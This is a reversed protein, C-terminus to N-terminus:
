VFPLRPPAAPWRKLSKTRVLVFRCSFVIQAISYHPAVFLALVFNSSAHFFPARVLQGIGAGGSYTCVEKIKPRHPESGAPTPITIEIIAIPVKMIISIFLFVHWIFNLVLSRILMDFIPSLGPSHGLILLAFHM